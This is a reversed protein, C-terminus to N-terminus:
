AGGARLRELEASLRAIEADREAVVREREELEWTKEYEYPVPSGEWEHDTIRRGNSLAGAAPRDGAAEGRSYRM